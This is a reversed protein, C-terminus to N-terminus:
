KVQKGLVRDLATIRQDFLFVYAGMALFLTDRVLFFWTISDECNTAGFCGCDIELGRALSIGIVFAFVTLMSSAVLAGGRIWIGVFLSVGVVIEVWPLLIAVPNIMWEPLLRYSCLINAFGQPDSAKMVGAYVFVFGLFLRFVLSVLPSTIWSSLKTSM